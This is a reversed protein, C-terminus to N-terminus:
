PLQSPATLECRNQPCFVALWASQRTPKDVEPLNIREEERLCAEGPCFVKLWISKKSSAM